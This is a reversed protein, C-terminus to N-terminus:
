FTVQTALPRPGVEPGFGFNGWCMLSDDSLVACTQAYGASIRVANEVGLVETPNAHATTTGDGLQGGKNYGWCTVKGNALLACTHSDGAAVSVVNTLGPVTVPTSAQARVCAESSSAGEGVQGYSSRGWCTVTGDAIRACAHTSGASIQTVNGVGAVITPTNKSVNLADCADSGSNTGWCAVTKDALLACTLAAGASVQTATSIGAMTVPTLSYGGDSVSPGLQSHFNNGWCTVTGGPMLACSHYEGLSLQSVKGVITNVAQTRETRTGDGLQGYNNSGWCQVGGDEYVACSDTYDADIRSPIGSLGLVPASPLVRATTTGDGLMGGYNSGWCHVSGDLLLACVHYWGVAVQAVKLPAGSGITSSQGGASAGGVLTSGLTSSGGSPVVVVSGLGGASKGGTSVSASGGRTTQSSDTSSGGSDGVSGSNGDLPLDGLDVRPFTCGVTILWLNAACIYSKKTM